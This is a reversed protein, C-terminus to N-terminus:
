KEIENPNFKNRIENKKHKMGRYGKVSECQDSRNMRWIEMKM